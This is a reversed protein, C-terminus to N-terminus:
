NQQEVKLIDGPRVQSSQDMNNLSRLKQPSMNFKRAIAWIYEGAQVRYTVIKRAASASSKKKESANAAEKKVAPSAKKAEGGKGARNEFEALAKQM